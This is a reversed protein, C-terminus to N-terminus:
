YPSGFRVMKLMVATAAKDRRTIEEPDNAHMVAFAPHEPGCCPRGCYPCRPEPAPAVTPAVGESTAVQVPPGALLAERIEARHHRLFIVEDDTLQKFGSPPRYALRGNRLAVAIGRAALGELWATALTTDDTM